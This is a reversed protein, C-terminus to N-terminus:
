LTAAGDIRLVANLLVRAGAESWAPTIAEEEAHSIGQICPIFIMATPIHPNVQCADHGAGSIMRRSPLAETRASEDIREVLRPDFNVIPSDLVLEATISVQTRTAISECAFRMEQRMQELGRPEPHRFEVMLEVAGPIVNPSNPSVVLRGVTARGVHPHAFGIDQVRTVLQAAAALADRRQEMPYTGSHGAQGEFRVRFWCMGQVARVVGIPLDEQELIPGQEIHAELYCHFEDPAIVDSGAYGIAALADGLSVGEADVRALLEAADFRGAFFASGMMAPAFRAGEENTWCVVEIPHQTQAGSEHLARLVELGAMVGYTGDYKGAMPQSDLHSGILIAKADPDSGARRVFTNGLADIRITCGISRAVDVFYDRGQGDEFSAALRHIGGAATAGFRSITELSHWLRAADIQPSGNM